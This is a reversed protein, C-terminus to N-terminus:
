DSTVVRLSSERVVLEPPLILRQAPASPNDIREILRQAAQKGIDATPVALTTLPPQQLRAEAVGDFGIM